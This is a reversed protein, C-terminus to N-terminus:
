ENQERRPLLQIITGPGGLGGGHERWHRLAESLRIWNWLHFDDGDQRYATVAERLDEILAETM